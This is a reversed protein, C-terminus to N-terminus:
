RLLDALRAAGVDPPGSTDVATAEPWPDALEALERAVAVGADSPDDGRAARAELRSRATDPDVECRVQHLESSTAEALAAAAARNGASGWSADLVVTDGRGLATAARALLADYTAATSAPDYLGEGFADGTRSTATLGALEKRVRDSSVVVWGHD